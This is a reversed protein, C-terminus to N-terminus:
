FGFVLNYGVYFRTPLGQKEHYTQATTISSAQYSSTTDLSYTPIKMGLELQNFRFFSVQIGANIVAGNRQQADISLTPEIAGTSESHLTTSSKGLSLHEFGVGFFLSANLYSTIDYKLLLDLNISQFSGENNLNRSSSSTGNGGLAQSFTADSTTNFSGYTYYGRFGVYKTPYYFGGAQILYGLKSDTQIDLSGSSIPTGNKTDMFPKLSRTGQLSAGVFAGYDPNDYWQKASLGSALGLLIFLVKSIKTQLM